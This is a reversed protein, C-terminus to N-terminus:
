HVHVLSMITIAICDFQSKEIKTHINLQVLFVGFCKMIMFERRDIVVSWCNIKICYQLLSQMSPDKSFFQNHVTYIIVTLSSQFLRPTAYYTKDEFELGTMETIIEDIRESTYKAQNEYSATSCGIM